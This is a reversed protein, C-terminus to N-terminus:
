EAPKRIISGTNINVSDTPSLGYREIVEGSAQGYAEEAAKATQVALAHQHELLAVRQRANDLELAAIKLAARDDASLTTADTM